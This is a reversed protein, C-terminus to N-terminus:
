ERRRSASAAADDGVAESMGGRGGRHVARERQEILGPDLALERQALDAGAADLDHLHPAPRLRHAFLEPAAAGLLRAAHCRDEGSTGSRSNPEFTTPM